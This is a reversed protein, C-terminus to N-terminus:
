GVQLGGRRNSTVTVSRKRLTFRVQPLTKMRM